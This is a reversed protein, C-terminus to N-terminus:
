LIPEVCEPSLVSLLLYKALWTFVPSLLLLMTKIDAAINIVEPNNKFTQM